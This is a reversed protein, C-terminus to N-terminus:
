TTKKIIVTQKRVLKERVRLGTSIKRTICPASGPTTAEEVKVARQLDPDWKDSDILTCDLATLQCRLREIYAAMGKEQPMRSLEDMTDVVELAWDELRRVLESDREKVLERADESDISNILEDVTKRSESVPPSDPKDIKEEQLPPMQVVARPRDRHSSIPRNLRLIDDIRNDESKPVDAKLMDRKIASKIIIVGIILLALVLVILGILIMPNMDTHVHTFIGAILM